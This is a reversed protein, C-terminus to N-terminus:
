LMPYTYRYKKHHTKHKRHHVKHKRHHVVKRKKHHYTHSVRRRRTPHTSFIAKKISKMKRITSPKKFYERTRDIAKNSFVSAKTVARDAGHVLKGFTSNDFIMKKAKANAEKLEDIKRKEKNIEDIVLQKERLKASKIDGKKKTIAMRRELTEKTDELKDMAKQRAKELREEKMQLRGINLEHLFGQKKPDFPRCDKGNAVGDRDSDANRNMKRVGTSPIVTVVKSKHKIVVLRNGTKAKHLYTGTNYQLHPSYIMDGKRLKAMVAKRQANNKFRM